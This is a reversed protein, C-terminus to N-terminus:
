NMIQARGAYWLLHTHYISNPTHTLSFIYPLSLTHSLLSYTYSFIYTLTLTDIHTHSYRYSHSQTNGANGALDLVERGIRCAARIGDIEAKTYIKMVSGSRKDESESLPFGTPHDAYDPRAIGPPVIRKPSQQFPRLPGTFLYGRFEPPLKSPDEKQAKKHVLKHENWNGKFCEQGCFRSPPLGLKLCTPCAMSAPNVCGPTCCAHVIDATAGPAKEDSEGEMGKLKTM